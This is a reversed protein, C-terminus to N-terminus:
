IIFVCIGVSSLVNKLMLANTCYMSVVYRGSKHAGAWSLVSPASDGVGSAYMINVLVNWKMYYVDSSNKVFTSM